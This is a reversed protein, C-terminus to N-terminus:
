FLNSRLGVLYNWIWLSGKGFIADQRRVLLFADNQSPLLFPDLSLEVLEGKELEKKVMHDPLVGWGTGSLILEKKTSLSTVRWTEKALVKQTSMEEREPVNSVVIQLYNELIERELPEKEKALPHNQSVVNIVRLPYIAKEDLAPYVEGQSCFIGLPFKGSTVLDPITSFLSHQLHLRIKPFKQHFESFMETLINSPFSPDVALLIDTEEKHTIKKAEEQFEFLQRLVDKAYGLMRHGNETLRPKRFSRDFLPFELQEELNSISYSIASQARNLKQAGASFSGEEVVVVFVRIQELTIADCYM